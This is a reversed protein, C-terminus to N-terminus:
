TRIRSIQISTHRMATIACEELISQHHAIFRPSQVSKSDRHIQSCWLELSQEKTKDVDDLAYNRTKSTTWCRSRGREPEAECGFLVKRSGAPASALASLQWGSAPDPSALCRTLLTAVAAVAARLRSPARVAVDPFRVVVNQYTSINRYRTCQSGRRGDVAAPDACCFPSDQMGAGASCTLVRGVMNQAPAVYLCPTPSTEYLKVVGADEMM